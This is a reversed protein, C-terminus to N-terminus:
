ASAVPRFLPLTLGSGHEAMVAEVAMGVAVDEVPCDVINAHYFRGERCGQWFPLDAPDGGARAIAELLGADGSM